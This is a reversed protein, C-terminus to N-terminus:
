LRGLAWCGAFCIMVYAKWQQLLAFTANGGGTGNGVARAPPEAQM